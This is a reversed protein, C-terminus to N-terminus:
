NITAFTDKHKASAQKPFSKSNSKKERIAPGDLVRLVLKHEDRFDPCDKAKMNEAYKLM